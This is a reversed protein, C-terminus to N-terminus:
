KLKKFFGFLAFIERKTLFSKNLVKKWVTIQTQKKHKTTFKFKNLHTNIMNLLVEKDKKSALEFEKQPKTKFLEYFIITAAHSLNLTKYKPSSPINVIIDCKKIEQNSLGNGERGFVLAIKQKKGKIKQALQEPTLAVRPINYDTGMIATTGIIYDFQKLEEFDKLVKAKKLIQKAHKSRVLARESLHNCKPAVLVLNTLAFNKMARAIAGINGETEPEILVVYIM